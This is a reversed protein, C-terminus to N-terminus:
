ATERDQDGDLALVPVGVGAHEGRAIEAFLENTVPRTLSKRNRNLAATEGCGEPHFAICWCGGFIGNNAEVLTRLSAM